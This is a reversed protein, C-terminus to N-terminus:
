LALLPDEETAMSLCRKPLQSLHQLITCISHSMPLWSKPQRQWHLNLVVNVHNSKCFVKQVVNNQLTTKFSLVSVLFCVLAHHVMHSHNHMAQDAALPHIHQVLLVFIVYRSCWIWRLLLKTLLTKTQQQWSKMPPPWVKSKVGRSKPQLCTTCLIWQERLSITMVIVIFPLWCLWWQSSAIKKAYVCMLKIVM